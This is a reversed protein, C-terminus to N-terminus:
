ESPTVGQCELMRNSHIKRKMHKQLHWKNIETGCECTVRETGNAKQQQYFKDKNKEYYEHKMKKVEPKARSRKGSEKQDYCIPLLKNVCNGHLEVHYRERTKLERITLCPYDEILTMTYNNNELIKKSSINKNTHKDDYVHKAKRQVLTYCTSGIYTLGTINCDMRYIKGKSYDPM